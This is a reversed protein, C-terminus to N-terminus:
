KCHPRTADAGAGLLFTILVASIAGMRTRPGVLGCAPSIELSLDILWAPKRGDRIAALASRGTLRGTAVISCLDAYV